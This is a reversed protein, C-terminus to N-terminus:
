EVIEQVPHRRHFPWLTPAEIGCRWVNKDVNVVNITDIVSFGRSVRLDFDYQQRGEFGHPRSTYNNM